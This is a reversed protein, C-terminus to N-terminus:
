LSAAIYEEIDEFFPDREVVVPNVNIPEIEAWYEPMDTPSWDPHQMIYNNIRYALDRAQVHHDDEIPGCYAYRTGDPLVVEVRWVQYTQMSGDVDQGTVFDYNVTAMWVNNINM